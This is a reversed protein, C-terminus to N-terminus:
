SALGAPATQRHQETPTEFAAPEGAMFALGDLAEHLRQRQEDSYALLPLRPDGMPRGLVELAAKVGAAYGDRVVHWLRDIDYQDARAAVFDGALCREYMRRAMRPALQSFLSFTGRAGIAMAPVPYDIGSFTCFSPRTDAAVRTVETFYRMDFSADKMGVLNPLRDLLDVLLGSSISVGLKPSNYLVLSLETATGIALFHERLAAQSPQWHYPPLCVIGDAGVSAAHRALDIASDTGSMSVNILVPVRGRAARVALEAVRKREETRLNISEGIHMPMAVADAEHAILFDILQQYRDEDIDGTDTFPTVPTGVLGRIDAM